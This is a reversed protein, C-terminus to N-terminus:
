SQSGWEKIGFAHLTSTNGAGLSHPNMQVDTIPFGITFISLPNPLCMLNYWFFSFFFPALTKAKWSPDGGM